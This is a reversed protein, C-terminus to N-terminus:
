NAWTCCLILFCVVGAGSQHPTHDPDTRLVKSRMTGGLVIYGEGDGRQRTIPLPSSTIYTSDYVRQFLPWQRRCM